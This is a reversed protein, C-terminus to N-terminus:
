MVVRQKCMNVQSQKICSDNTQNWTEPKQSVMLIADESVRSGMKRNNVQPMSIKFSQIQMILVKRTM